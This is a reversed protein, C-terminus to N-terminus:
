KQKIHTLPCFNGIEEKKRCNERNFKKGAREERRL